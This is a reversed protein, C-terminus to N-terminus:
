NVTFSVDLVAFIVFLHNGVLVDGLHLATFKIQFSNCCFPPLITHSLQGYTEVVLMFYIIKKSSKTDRVRNPM